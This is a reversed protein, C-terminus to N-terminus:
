EAWKFRLSFPPALDLSALTGLILERYDARFCSGM